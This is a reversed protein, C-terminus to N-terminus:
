RRVGINPDQYAPDRHDVTNSKRRLGALGALGILGLWGYDPSDDRNNYSTGQTTSTGTGTGTDNGNSQASAPLVAPLTALGVVLASVRVLNFLKSYKM